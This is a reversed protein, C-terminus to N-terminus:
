QRARFSMTQMQVKVHITLTILKSRQYQKVMNSTLDQPVHLVLDFPGLADFFFSDFTDKKQATYKRGQFSSAHTILFIHSPINLLLRELFSSSGQSSDSSSSVSSFPPLLGVPCLSSLFEREKSFLIAERKRDQECFNGM